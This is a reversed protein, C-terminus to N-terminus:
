PRSGISPSSRAGARAARPRPAGGAGRGAGGRGARPARRHARRALHGAPRGAARDARRGLRPGPRDRAGRRGRAYACVGPGAELPRYAGAFADPRRARLDLARWILFLKETEPTPAAGDRLAALAERRRKWDVPRRNDPDVLNLAELEDGQYVDPVGPSTLKLLQQCLAARRGERAVAAQFPEFDDLFPRHELLAVAFACVRKEYGLQQEVWSTTRKAERLAKVLYASLREADIPWAGLLTQYILYEENADPAGDRRLEANLERWRLVRERWADTMGALAGIRARVDGGRKTDHTQSVLLGLPFREARRACAAHFEAVSIGFRGPDGGVENLALLRVHRYFATDEVGKATVPPSTQQFRTVFEDHGGERLLLADALAGHIGAEAVAARDADEVRGSWPEVYTRYVPLAALADAIGPM